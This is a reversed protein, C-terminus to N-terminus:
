RGGNQQQAWVSLNKIENKMNEIRFNENTEEYSKQTSVESKKAIDEIKEDTELTNTIRM